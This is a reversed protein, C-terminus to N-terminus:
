KPEMDYNYVKRMKAKVLARTLVSYQSCQEEKMADEVEQIGNKAIMRNLPEELWAPLGTYEKVSLEEEFHELVEAICAVSARVNNASTYFELLRTWAFMSFGKQIVKRYAREAMRPRGLREALMGRYLWM